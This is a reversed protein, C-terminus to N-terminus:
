VASISISNRTITIANNAGDRVYYGDSPFVGPMRRWTAAGGPWNGIVSQQWNCHWQGVLCALVDYAQGAAFGVVM